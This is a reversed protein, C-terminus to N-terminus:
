LQSIWAGELDPPEEADVNLVQRHCANPVLQASCTVAILLVSATAAAAAGPAMTTQYHHARAQTKRRRRVLPRSSQTGSHVLRPSLSPASEAVNHGACCM